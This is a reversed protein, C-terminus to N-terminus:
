PSFMRSHLVLGRRAEKADAAAKETRKSEHRKSETGASAWCDAGVPSFDCSGSIAERPCRLRTRWILYPSQFFTHKLVGPLPMTHRLLMLPVKSVPCDATRASRM